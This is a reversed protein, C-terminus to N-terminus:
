ANKLTFLFRSGEGLQSEAWIRGGHREIIKRCIALGFGTGPYKTKSHLREGIKFIREAYEPEFGIGNDQVFLTSEGAGLRAGVHVKVPRDGRFKVANGILNQFVRSLETEVALVKPLADSTVVAGSEEFTARLNDCVASLVKNCDTPILEGERGVKAYAYLDDIMRNMLRSSSITREIYDEAGEDLQDALRRQLRQMLTSITRLPERLDHSAVFAFQDLDANSRALEQAQRELAQNAREAVATREAVRQELSRNLSNLAEEAAKRETIDFAVGQMFLPRGDVDRVVKAQGHVWVVQGDRAIFRYVSEFTEGTACTRAFEVNWRTRDEPHLQAYWLVPNELWEKQSFGLLKEIQPSVYLESIGGDLAAMFTVAPIGEVLTRYRVEAKRLDAEARKRDSIDRITSITQLRNGMRMPSLSIEVPIESGDKHRGYLELGIGMPRSHPDAFFANRHGVHRARLRDPVLLEVARGHLEARRYGFLRETRANVQVIAGDSDVIVMADPLSELLSRITRATWKLETVAHRGVASTAVSPATGASSERRVAEWPPAAPRASTASVAEALHQLIAEAQQVTLPAKGDHTLPPDHTSM